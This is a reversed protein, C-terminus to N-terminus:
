DRASSSPALKCFEQKLSCARQYESTALDERHLRHYVYGLNLHAEALNDDLKLAQRYTDVSQQLRGIRDYCIGLINLLRADNFGLEIAKALHPAAAAYNEQEYYLMGLDRRLPAFNGQIAIAKEYDAIAAAKDTHGEISALEYLAKYNQPNLKLANQAWQRAEHYKGLFFLARALGTMAEGFTPNLDLCRKLEAASREWDKQKSAGIGLMFPVIYMKPDQQQVKELLAEGDSLNGLRFADQAQLITNFEDLKDKPDPLGAALPEPSVPSRYAVYGLARLKELAAPDANSQSAVDLQYPSRRLLGQIKEKLVAATASQQSVLNSKEDPDAAIDYLEPKPADIYHYRDTVLSHVPSWGFSNLPYFTESYAPRSNAVRALGSPFPSERATKLDLLEPSEFQKEISDTVGALKLLTPAVAITEVPVTIREPRFGTGAPPKVILPVRVTSNYVFFGHENEGHEGLSEGHDSLMVILTREYLHNVRLWAILRGLEHDAYAIEGDYPRDRYASRYPEPPDYPSHPDYLHLWFFFPRRTPTKQSKTLWAIAHDVSPGAKRDVLGIDKTLFAEPAFADDYFDFGRALGWTRDLVYASVVAGSLYGNQKFAQAVSRFRPDLPPSTFDQVGNQFPYTGTLIAAHSPTTLPVQSIAREFVIGDHALADLTSTQIKSYGYYGLHDARVTDITVLLVNPKVRVAPHKVQAHVVIVPLLCFLIATRLCYQSKM